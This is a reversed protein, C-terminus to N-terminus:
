PAQGKRFVSLRHKPQAFSAHPLADAAVRELGFGALSAVLTDDDIREPLMYLYPIREELLSRDWDPHLRGAIGLAIREM